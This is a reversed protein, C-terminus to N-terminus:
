MTVDSQATEILWRTGDFVLVILSTREQGQYRTVVTALAADDTRIRVDTVLVLEIRDSEPVPQPNAAQEFFRQTFVLDYGSFREAIWSPSFNSIMRALDGANQCAISQAIRETVALVTEDDAPTTPETAIPTPTPPIANLDGPDSPIMPATPAITCAAPDVSPADQAIASTFTMWSSCGFLCVIAILRWSV